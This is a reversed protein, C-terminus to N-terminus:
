SNSAGGKSPTKGLQSLKLGSLSASVNKVAM